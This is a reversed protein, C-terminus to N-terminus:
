LLKRFGRYVGDFAHVTYFWMHVAASLPMRAAIGPFRARLNRPAAYRSEALSKSLRGAILRRMKRVATYMLLEGRLRRRHDNQHYKFKLGSVLRIRMERVIYRWKVAAYNVWDNKQKDLGRLIAM